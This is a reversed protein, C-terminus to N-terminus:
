DFSPELPTFEFDMKIGTPSTGDLTPVHGEEM